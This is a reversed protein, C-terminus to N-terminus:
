HSADRAASIFRIPMGHEDSVLTSLFGLPPHFEGVTTAVVIKGDPPLAIEGGSIDSGGPPEIAVVGGTGGLLAFQSAGGGSAM